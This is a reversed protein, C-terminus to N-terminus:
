KEEEADSTRVDEAARAAWEELPSEPATDGCDTLFDEVNGVTGLQLLFKRAVEGSRRRWRQLAGKMDTGHVIDFGSESREVGHTVWLHSDVGNESLWGDGHQGSDVCYGCYYRDKRPEWNPDLYHPHIVRSFLELGM